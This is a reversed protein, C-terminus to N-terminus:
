NGNTSCFLWVKKSSRFKIWQKPLLLSFKGASSRKLITIFIITIIISPGVVAM